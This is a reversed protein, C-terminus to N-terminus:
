CKNTAEVPVDPSTVYEVFDYDEQYFHLELANRKNVPISNSVQDNPPAPVVLEYCQGQENEILIVDYDDYGFRVGRVSNIQESMATPTFETSLIDHGPLYRRSSVAHATFATKVTDKLRKLM